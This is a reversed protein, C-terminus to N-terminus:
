VVYQSEQLTISGDKEMDRILGIIHQQAAEVERIKVAGVVEIDERLMEASRQSMVGMIRTKLQDSTGKLAITLMKRDVRQILEKLDRVDLQILDEFVFMLHRITEFLKNDEQEIANLINRSEGTDLRNVMEAVARVGGYSERSFEGLAQLKEEIVSAIKGIIEPSIQDLNAMRVAVDTRLERPLSTLLVAAQSATLHSLVLAITQPHENHIFKALQQPDAKQLVDFNATETDISNKVRELMRSAVDAGFAHHLMERAYDLGGKVMYQQAAVMQDFEELITEVESSGLNALQAVAQSVRRVEEETLHKLIQASINEGVTALLAAAKDVGSLSGNLARRM